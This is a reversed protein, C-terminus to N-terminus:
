FFACVIKSEFSRLPLFCTKVGEHDAGAVQFLYFEQNKIDQCERANNQHDTILPHKTLKKVGDKSIDFWFTVLVHMYM